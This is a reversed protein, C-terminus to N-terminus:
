FRRRVYIMDGDSIGYDSLVVGDELLRNNHVFKIKEPKEGIMKRLKEKLNAVTETEVSDITVGYRNGTILTFHITDHLIERLLDAHNSLDNRYYDECKGTITDNM